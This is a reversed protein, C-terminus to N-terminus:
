CSMAGSSTSGNLEPREKFKIVRSPARCLPCLLKKDKFAENLCERDFVHGCEQEVAGRLGGERLCIRCELPSEEYRPPLSQIRKALQYLKKAALGAATISVLTISTCVYWAIMSVSSRRVVASGMILAFLSTAYFSNRETQVKKIQDYWNPSCDPTNELRQAFPPWLGLQISELTSVTM